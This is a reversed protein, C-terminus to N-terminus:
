SSLNPCTYTPLPSPSSSHSLEAVTFPTKRCFHCPNLDTKPPIGLTYM